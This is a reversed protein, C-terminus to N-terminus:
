SVIKKRPLIMKSKRGKSGKLTHKIRQMSPRHPRRSYFKQSVSSNPVTLWLSDLTIIMMCTWAAHSHLQLTDMKSASMHGAVNRVGQIVTKEAFWVIGKVAGRLQTCTHRWWSFTIRAYGPTRVGAEHISLMWTSHMVWGFIEMKQVNATEM